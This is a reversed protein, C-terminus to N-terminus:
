DALRIFVFHMPINDNLTLSSHLVPALRDVFYGEAVAAGDKAAVVMGVHMWKNDSYKVNKPSVLERIVCDSVSVCGVDSFFLSVLTLWLPLM